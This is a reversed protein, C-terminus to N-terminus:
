AFRSPLFPKRGSTDVSATKRQLSFSLVVCVVKDPKYPGTITRDNGKGLSSQPALDFLSFGQPSWQEFCKGCPDM